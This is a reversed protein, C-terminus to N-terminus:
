TKCPQGPQQLDTSEKFQDLKIFLGMTGDPQINPIEGDKIKERPGWSIV